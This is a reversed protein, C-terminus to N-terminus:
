SYRYRRQIKRAPSRARLKAVSTRWTRNVNSGYSGVSRGELESGKHANRVSYIMMPGPWHTRALPRVTRMKSFCPTGSAGVAPEAGQRSKHSSPAVAVPRHRELKESSKPFLGSGPFRPFRSFVPLQCGSWSADAGPERELNPRFWGLNPTTEGVKNTNLRPVTGSFWRWM